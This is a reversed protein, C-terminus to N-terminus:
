FQMSAIQEMKKLKGDEFTFWQVARATYSKGNERFSGTENLLVAISDGQVIM